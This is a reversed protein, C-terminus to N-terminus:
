RMILKSFYGTSVLFEPSVISMGLLINYLWLLCYFCSRLTSFANLFICFCGGFTDTVKNFFLIWRLHKWTFKVFNKLVDKKCLMELRSSRYITCSSTYCITWLTKIISPLIGWCVNWFQKFTATLNIHCWLTPCHWIWTSIVNYIDVNIHVINFMTGGINDIEFYINFANSLTSVVNNNEVELKVVNILMSVVSYIHGNVCLQFSCFFIKKLKLFFPFFFSFFFPFSFSTSVSYM